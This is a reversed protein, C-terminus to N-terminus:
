STVIGFPPPVTTQLLTALPVCKQRVLASVAFVAYVMVTLAQPSTPSVLVTAVWVAVTVVPGGTAGVAAGVANRSSAVCARTEHSVTASLRAVRVAAPM